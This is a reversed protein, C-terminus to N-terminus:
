AMLSRPLHMLSLELRARFLVCLGKFHDAFLAFNPAGILSAWCHGLAPLAIRTLGSWGTTFRGARQPSHLSLASTVALMANQWSVRLALGFSANVTSPSLTM